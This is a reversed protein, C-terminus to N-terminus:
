EVRSDYRQFWRTFVDADTELAKGIKFSGTRVRVPSFIEMTVPFTSSKDKVRSEELEQMQSAVEEVEILEEILNDYEEKASDLSPPQEVVASQDLQMMAPHNLPPLPPPPLSLKASFLKSSQYIPGTNITLSKTEPSKIGEQTNHHDSTTVAAPVAAAVVSLKVTNDALQQQQKKMKTSDSEYGPDSEGSEIGKKGGPPTGGSTGESQTEAGAPGAAATM